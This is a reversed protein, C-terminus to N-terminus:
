TTSHVRRAAIVRIGVGALGLALALLVTPVAGGDPGLAATLVERGMLVMEPIDGAIVRTGLVSQVATFVAPIVWLFALNLVWVALRGLPRVGCWALACGVVIAPLWHAISPVAIPVNTHGVVGVVWEVAWSTFPVAMLGGGITTAVTSKSAILLLAVVAALISCIVGAMLGARYYQALTGRMLGQGLLEFSQVTAAVQVLLLGVIACWTVLRRRVPSWVRIAFGAAAGGTTLLAVITLVEYQSLPLLALPMQGPMVQTAWLNQLPLRAGSIWWPVLGLAAALIGILLGLAASSAAGRPRKESEDTRETAIEAHSM